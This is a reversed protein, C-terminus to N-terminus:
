LPKPKPQAAPKNTQSYWFHINYAKVRMERREIKHHARLSLWETCLRQFPVLVIVEVTVLCSDCYVHVLFVIISSKITESLLCLFSIHYERLRGREALLFFWCVRAVGAFAGEMGTWVMGYRRGSLGLLHFFYRFRSRNEIMRM